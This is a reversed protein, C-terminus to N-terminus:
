LFRIIEKNYLSDNLRTEVDIKMVKLLERRWDNRTLKTTTNDNSINDTKTKRLMWILKFTHWILLVSFLGGVTALLVKLEHSKNETTSWLSYIGVLVATEITLKIVLINKGPFEKIAPLQNILYGVISTLLVGCLAQFFPHNFM